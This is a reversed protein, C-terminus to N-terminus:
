KQSKDIGTFEIAADLDKYRRKITRDIQSFSGLMSNVKVNYDKEFQNTLQKHIKQSQKLNTKVGRLKGSPTTELRNMSDVLNVRLNRISGLLRREHNVALSGLFNDDDEAGRIIRNIDPM